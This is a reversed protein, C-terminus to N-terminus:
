IFINRNKKACSLQILVCFINKKQIKTYVKTQSFEYLHLCIFEIYITPSPRHFRNPKFAYKLKKPIFQLSKVTNPNYQLTGLPVM